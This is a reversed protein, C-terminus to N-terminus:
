RADINATPVTTGMFWLSLNEMEKITPRTKREPQEAGEVGFAVVGEDLGSDLSGAEAM